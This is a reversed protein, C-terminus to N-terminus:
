HRGNNNEHWWHGDDKQGADLASWFQCAGTASTNPEVNIHGILLLEKWVADPDNLDCEPSACRQKPIFYVDKTLMSVASPLQKKHSLVAYDPHQSKPLSEFFYAMQHGVRTLITMLDLTDAYKQLM